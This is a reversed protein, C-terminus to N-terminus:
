NFIFQNNEIISLVIFLIFTIISTYIYVDCIKKIDEIYPYASSSGIVYENKKELKCNFISAIMSIPWGSNPSSTKKHYFYVKKFCDYLNLNLHKKKSILSGFYLFLISIRSPIYNLIDDLKASFFGINVYKETKYGIMSDLTSISKFLYAGILGYDGFIYFYFLPSLLSDVYNESISEIICSVIQGCNLDTTDRSVYTNLNNFKYFSNFSYKHLNDYLQLAPTVMSKIAFTCKLFYAQILIKLFYSYNSLYNSILIIIYSLLLSFILILFVLFFGSFVTNKLKFKNIISVILKGIWVVPHYKEKPEGFILDFLLSCLLIYSVDLFYNISYIQM